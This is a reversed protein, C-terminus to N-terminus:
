TVTGAFINLIIRRLPSFPIFKLFVGRMKKMETHVCIYVSSLKVSMEQNIKEKTLSEQNIISLLNIVTLFYDVVHM